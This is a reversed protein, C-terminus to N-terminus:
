ATRTFKIKATAITDFTWEASAEPNREFADIKYASTTPLSHASNATTSTGNKMGVSVYASDSTNMRTHAVLGIVNDIAYSPDELEFFSVDNVTNSQIYKNSDDPVAININSFGTDDDATIFDNGAVDGNAGITFARYADLIANNYSGASDNLCFDDLYCYQQEGLGISLASVSAYGISAGAVTDVNAITLTTGNAGGIRVIVQGDTASTTSSAEVWAAVHLWSQATVLGTDTTGLVTSDDTRIVTVAGDVTTGIAIQSTGAANNFTFFGMVRDTETFWFWGTAGCETKTSPYSRRIAHGYGLWQLAYSGTRVHTTEVTCLYSLATPYSYTTAMNTTSTAGTGYHEFGDAFLLAM